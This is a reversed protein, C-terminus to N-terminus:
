FIEEKKDKGKTLKEKPINKQKLFESKAFSLIYFKITTRM